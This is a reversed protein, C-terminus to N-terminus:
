AFIESDCDTFLHSKNDSDVYSSPCKEAKYFPLNSRWVVVFSFQGGHPYGEIRSDDVENRSKLQPQAFWLEPVHRGDHM